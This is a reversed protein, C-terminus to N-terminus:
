SDDALLCCSSEAQTLPPSRVATEAHAFFIQRGWRGSVTPPAEPASDRETEVLKLVSDYCNQTRTNRNQFVPIHLWMYLKFNMQM